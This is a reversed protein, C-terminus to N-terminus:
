LILYGYLWTFVTNQNEKNSNLSNSWWFSTGFINRRDNWCDSMFFDWNWDKHALNPGEFWISLSFSINLIPHGNQGITEIWICSIVGAVNPYHVRFYFRIKLLIL